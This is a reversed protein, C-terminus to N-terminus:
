YNNVYINLRKVYEKVNKVDINKSVCIQTNKYKWIKMITYKWIKM